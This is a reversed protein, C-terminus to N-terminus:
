GAIPDLSADDLLRLDAEDTHGEKSNSKLVLWFQAEHRITGRPVSPWLIPTNEFLLDTM